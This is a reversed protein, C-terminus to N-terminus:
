GMPAPKELEARKTNKGPDAWSGIKGSLKNKFTTVALLATIGMLLLAGAGGPSLQHGNQDRTERRLSECSNGQCKAIEALPPFV